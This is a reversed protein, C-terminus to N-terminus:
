QRDIMGLHAHYKNGCMPVLPVCKQGNPGSIGIPNSSLVVGVAVSKMNTLDWIRISRDHGTSALMKNKLLALGTVKAEHDQPNDYLPLCAMLRFPLLSRVSPPDTM